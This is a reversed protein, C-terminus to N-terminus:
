RRLKRSKTKITLTTVMNTLEDIGGDLTELIKLCQQQKKCFEYFLRTNLMGSEKIEKQLYELLSESDVM